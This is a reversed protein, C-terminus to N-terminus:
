AWIKVLIQRINLCINPCIKRLSRGRGGAATCKLIANFNNKSIRWGDTQSCSVCPYSHFWNLRLVGLWSLLKLRHMQPVRSKV